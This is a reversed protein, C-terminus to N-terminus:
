PATGLYWRTYSRSMSPSMPPPPRIVVATSSPPLLHFITSSPPLLHPHLVHSPPPPPLDSFFFPLIHLLFFVPLYRTNPLIATLVRSKEECGAICTPNTREGEGMDRGWVKRRGQRERGEERGEGRQMRERCEREAKQRMPGRSEEGREGERVQIREARSAVENLERLTGISTITRQIGQAFTADTVCRVPDDVIGLLSQVFEDKSVQTHQVPPIFPRTDTHTLKLAHHRTNRRMSDLEVRERERKRERERESRSAGFGLVVCDGRCGEHLVYLVQM